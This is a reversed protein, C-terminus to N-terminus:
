TTTFLVWVNYTGATSSTIQKLTLGENERIMIPQHFHLGPLIVPPWFPFAEQTQAATNTEESHYFRSILKDGLAAGGSAAFRATVSGSLAANGSDLKVPTIGTGGTGVSTTKHLDFQIAVGTQTSMDKQLAIALVQLIKGSGTANFLDFFLKNAALAIFGSQMCWTPRTGVIHGEYDAVVMTQLESSMGSPTHTGVQAGAGPTVLISDTPQSM